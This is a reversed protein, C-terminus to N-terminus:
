LGGFPFLQLITKPALFTLRSNPWSRAFCGDTDSCPRKPLSCVVRVDTEGYGSAKWGSRSRAELVGGDYCCRMQGLTEQRAFVAAVFEGAIRPSMERRPATRDHLSPRRYGIGSPEQIHSSRPTEQGNRATPIRDWFRLNSRDRAKPSLQNAHNIIIM